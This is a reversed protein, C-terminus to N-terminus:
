NLCLEARVLPHAVVGFCCSLPDGKARRSLRFPHKEENPQERTSAANIFLGVKDKKLDQKQSVATSSTRRSLLNGRFKNPIQETGTRRRADERRRRRRGKEESMAHHPVPEGACRSSLAGGGM